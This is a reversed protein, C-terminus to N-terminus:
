KQRTRRGEVLDDIFVIAEDETQVTGVLDWRKLIQFRRDSMSQIPQTSRNGAVRRITYGRYETTDLESM